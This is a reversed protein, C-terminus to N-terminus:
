FVIGGEGCKWFLTDNNDKPTISGDKGVLYVGSYYGAPNVPTFYILTVEYGDNTKVANSVPRKEPLPNNPDDAMIKCGYIDYDKGEIVVKKVRDYTSWGLGVITFEVYKLADDESGVSFVNKYDDPKLIFYKDGGFNVVPAYVADGGVAMEPVLNIKTDPLKTPVPSTIETTELGLPEAKDPKLLEPQTNIFEDLSNASQIDKIDSIYKKEPYFVRLGILAAIGVIFLATLTIFLINKNKNQM